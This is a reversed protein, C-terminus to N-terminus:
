LEKVWEVANTKVDAEFRKKAKKAVDVEKSPAKQTKKVFLHSCIVLKGTSSYFFLLRLRGAKFEYIKNTTDVLHLQDSSFSSPGKEALQEIYAMLRRGSAQVATELQEFQDLLLCESAGDAREHVIAGVDYAGEVVSLIKLINVWLNISHTSPRFFGLM